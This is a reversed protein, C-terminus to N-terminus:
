AAVEEDPNESPANRELDELIEAYHKGCVPHQRIRAKVKELIDRLEAEFDDVAVLEGRLKALKLEAMEADAAAKRKEAEHLSDIEPKREVEAKALKAVRENYWTRCEPWPYRRKQAEGKYPMGDAVFRSISRPAVGLLEALETGTVKRRAM